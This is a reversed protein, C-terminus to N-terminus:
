RRVARELYQAFTATGLFSVLALVLAVDLYVPQAAAISYAGIAGVAITTMLDLALLRDPLTPGRVLRVFALLVAGALMAALVQLAVHLLMTM